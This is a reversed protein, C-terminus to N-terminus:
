AAKTTSGSTPIFGPHRKANVPDADRTIALMHDKYELKSNMLSKEAMM